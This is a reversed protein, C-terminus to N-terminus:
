RGGPRQREVVYTRVRPAKGTRAGLEAIVARVEPREGYAAMDAADDWTALCGYEGAEDDVFLVHEEAGAAAEALRAAIARAEDGAGPRLRFSIETALTAPVDRSDVAGCRVARRPGGARAGSRM